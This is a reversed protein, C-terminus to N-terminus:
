HQNLYYEGLYDALRDQSQNWGASMGKLAEQAAASSKLVVVHLTLKTKGNHNEFTVTNLAELQPHGNDDPIATSIFVLREPELIEKFTGRMPYVKGDPGKMDVRITGGPRLDVECVPNMFGNPGWWNALHGANTWAKFVMERPADFVRIITLEKKAPKHLLATQQEM